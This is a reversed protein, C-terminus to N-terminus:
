RDKRRWSFEEPQVVHGLERAPAGDIRALLTEGLLRGADVLDEGIMDVAPRMQDFIPTTRKAVVHVDKDASRGKDTIAAVTALASVEGGCLIGPRKQADLKDLVFARVREPPSSIDVTEAVEYSVGSERVATMFGHRMHTAFTFPPPAGILILHEAGRELLRSAARYAFAFNDYDVFPHPTALETRGHSAFPFDHELLLKVRADQPETRCFVVADALRNRLIQKIPTLPDEDQFIPMVVLHYATYRLADSLGAILSTGFGIIEEHPHLALSIVNTKGTRLRQAARDPVYGLQRAAEHVRRRTKEAIEPADNLARSVTTVALGTAEAVTKLTPREAVARSDTTQTSGDM